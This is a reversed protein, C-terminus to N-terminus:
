HGIHPTDHAPELPLDFMHGAVRNNVDIAAEFEMWVAKRIRYNTQQIVSRAEQKGVQQGTNPQGANRGRIPDTAALHKLVM